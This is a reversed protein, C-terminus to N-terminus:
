PAACVTAPDISPSIFRSHKDQGSLSQWRLFDVDQAPGMHFVSQSQANFWTNYDATLTTLFSGPSQNAFLLTEYVPQKANTGVITNGSLSWKGATAAFAAHTEWNTGLRPESGGFVMIQGRQNNYIVNGILHVSESVNNQIGEQLNNCMRSDQITFPGMNAELDIGGVLNQALFAHDISIDINDTDFWIGRGQNSVAKYNTFIAGHTFLFKAGGTEWTVFHGWGGRWNNYSAEVDEMTLDKLQFGDIGLEGNNNVTVRRASSSTVNYLVLGTWNNWQIRSDELLQDTAGVIAVASRQPTSM